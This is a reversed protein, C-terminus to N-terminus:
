IDKYSILKINKAKIINRIEPDTLIEYEKIRALSSIFRNHAPFLYPKENEPAAFGPHLAVEYSKNVRMCKIFNLFTKRNMIGSYMIGFFYDTTTFNHRIRSYSYRSIAWKLPNKRRVLNITQDIVTFVYFLEKSLRVKSVGYEPAIEKLIKFIEPIFHFNQHADFHTLEVSLDKAREFQAKLELKIQDLLGKKHRSFIQKIIKAPTNKFNGERDALLPVNRPEACSKGTTLSLHLGVPIKTKKIVNEIASEVFPTTMFISASTLIGNTYARRIGEDISPHIGLDDANVILKMM